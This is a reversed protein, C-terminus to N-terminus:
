LTGCLAGQLCSLYKNASLYITRFLYWTTVHKKRLFHNNMVILCNGTEHTRGSCTNKEVNGGSPMTKSGEVWSLLQSGHIHRRVM